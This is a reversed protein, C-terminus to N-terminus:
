PTVRHVFYSVNGFGSQDLQYSIHTVLVDYGAGKDPQVDDHGAVVRSFPKNSEIKKYKIVDTHDGSCLGPNELCRANIRM